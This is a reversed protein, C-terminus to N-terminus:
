AQELIPRAAEFVEQPSISEYSRRWFKQKTEFWRKTTTACIPTNNEGLAQWRNPGYIPEMRGFIEVTPCGVAAALHSPGTNRGILLRAKKLVWGLTGLSTKGALNICLSEFVPDKMLELISPDNENDGIIVFPDQYQDRIMKALEIFHSVPWRLSPSHATPNLVISSSHMSNWPLLNKTLEEDEPNLQISYHLPYFRDLDLSELLDLNYISEHQEGQQKVYPYVHTLYRNLKKHAHGIRVPIEAQAVIPYLAPLPHLHVFLDAQIERLTSLLQKKEEPSPHSSNPLPIFGELLPHGEFLPAMMQRAMFFLTHGAANLPSFCSSSIITDGVRDPRCIIIRKM